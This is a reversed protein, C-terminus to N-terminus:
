EAAEQKEAKAKEAEAKRAQEEKRRKEAAEKRQKIKEPDDLESDYARKTPVMMRANINLNVGNDTPELVENLVVVNKLQDVFIKRIDVYVDYRGKLDLEVLSAQQVRSGIVVNREELSSVNYSQLEIDYKQLASTYRNFLDELQQNPMLIEIRRRADQELTALKRALKDAAKKNEVAQAEFGRIQTLKRGNDSIQPQIVILNVAPPVAAVLLLVVARIITFPLLSAGSQADYATSVNKVGILKRVGGAGGKLRGLLGKLGSQEEAEGEFADPADGFLDDGLLADFDVDDGEDGDKNVPPTDQLPSIDTEMDAQMDLEPAEQQPIPPLQEAEMEAMTDDDYDIHAATKESRYREAVALAAQEDVLIEGSNDDIHGLMDAFAKAKADKHPALFVPVDAEIAQGEDVPKEPRVDVGAGADAKTVQGVDGLQALLARAQPSLRPPATRQESM